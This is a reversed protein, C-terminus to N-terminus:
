KKRIKTLDNSLKKLLDQAALSRASVKNKEETPLEALTQGNPLEFIPDFGFGNSGRPPVIIGNLEGHGKIINTGDYYVLECIVQAKKNDKDELRRLMEANREEVTASEGAFRHTFVGPFGDLAEICIGSDDAITPTGSIEYIEKAKKLANGYFTDQDEEVEVNIGAEQLSLIDIGELITKIEKLKNQSNSALIIAM